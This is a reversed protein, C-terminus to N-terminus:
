ISDILDELRSLDITWALPTNEDSDNEQVEGMLTSYRHACDIALQKFLPTMYRDPILEVVSTGSEAFIMNTLGAGHPAVIVETNRAISIQEEFSHDEMHVISFGKSQLLEHISAENQLPRDASRSRSIYIRKKTSTSLTPRTRCHEYFPARLSEVKPIFGRDAILAGRTDVIIEDPDIGLEKCLYREIKDLKYTAVIPCSLNMRKYAILAPLKDVLSHYYNNNGIRPLFYAHQVHRTVPSFAARGSMRFYHYIDSNEYKFRYQKNVQWSIGTPARCIRMNPACIVSFKEISDTETRDIWANNAREEDDLQSASIFTRTYTEPHPAHLVVADDEQLHAITKTFEDSQTELEEISNPLAPTIKTLYAGSLEQKRLYDKTNVLATHLRTYRIWSNALTKYTKEAHKHFDLARDLDVNAFMQLLTLYRDDFQNDDIDHEANNVCRLIQGGLNNFTDEDILQLQDFLQLFDSESQCDYLRDYAWQLKHLSSGNSPYTKSSHRNSSSSKISAYNANAALNASPAYGPTNPIARARDTELSLSQEANPPTDFTPTAQAM